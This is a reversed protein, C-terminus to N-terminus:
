LPRAVITVLSVENPSRDYSASLTITKYEPSSSAASSWELQCGNVDQAGDGLIDYDTVKLEDLKNQTVLLCKANVKFDNWTSFSHYTFIALSIVALILTVVMLEVLTLGRESRMM